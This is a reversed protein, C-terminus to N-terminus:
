KRSTVSLRSSEPSSGVGSSSGLSVCASVSAPRKNPTTGEFFEGSFYIMNRWRVNRSRRLVPLLATAEPDVSPFLSAKFQSFSQKGTQYQPRMPSTKVSTVIYDLDEERLGGEAPAAFTQIGRVRARQLELLDDDVLLVRRTVALKSPSADLGRGGLHRLAGKRIMDEIFGAKGEFGVAKGVIPADFIDELGAGALADRITGETSKSIIGITIGAERLARLRQGLMSARDKMESLKSVRAARDGPTATLTGDFDFFIVCIGFDLSKFHSRDPLPTSPPSALEIMCPLQRNEGAVSEPSNLPRPMTRQAGGAFSLGMNRQDGSGSLLPLNDDADDGNLVPPCSTLMSMSLPRQRPRQRKPPSDLSVGGSPPRDLSSKAFRSFDFHDTPSKPSTEGLSGRSNSSRPRSPAQRQSWMPSETQIQM